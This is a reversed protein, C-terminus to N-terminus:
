QGQAAAKKLDDDFLVGRGAIAVEIHVEKGGPDRWSRGGTYFTGDGHKGKFHHFELPGAPHRPHGVGSEASFPFPM